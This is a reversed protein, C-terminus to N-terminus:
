NFMGLLIGSKLLYTLWGAWALSEFTMFVFLTVNSSKTKGDRAIALQQHNIIRLFVALFTLIFLWM